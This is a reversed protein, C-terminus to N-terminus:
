VYLCVRERCSARGIECVALHHGSGFDLTLHGVSRSMWTGWDNIKLSKYTFGVLCPVHMHAPLYMYSPHGSSNRKAENVHLRLSAGQPCSEAAGM